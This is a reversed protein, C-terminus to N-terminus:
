ATTNVRTGVVQGSTNVTPRNSETEARVRDTENSEEVSSVGQTNGQPPQAQQTQQAQQAEQSQLSRASEDSQPARLKNQQAAASILSLNQSSSVSGIEMIYEKKYWREEFDKSKSAKIM